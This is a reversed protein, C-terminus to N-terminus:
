TLYLFNYTWLLTTSRSRSPDADNPRIQIRIPMMISFVSGPLMFLLWFLISLFNTKLFINNSKNYIMIVEKFFLFYLSPFVFCPFYFECFDNVLLQIWIRIWKKGIRIRSDPDADVHHPDVVSTWLICEENISGGRHSWDLFPAIHALGTIEQVIASCNEPFNLNLSGM